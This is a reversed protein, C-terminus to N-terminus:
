QFSLLFISGFITIISPRFYGFLAESLDYFSETKSMSRLPRCSVGAYGHPGGARNEFFEALSKKLILSQAHASREVNLRHLHWRVVMEPNMM